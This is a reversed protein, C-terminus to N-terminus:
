GAAKGPVQRGIRANAKHSGWLEVPQEEPLGVTSYAVPAMAPGPQTTPMVRTM